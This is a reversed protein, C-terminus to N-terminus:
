EVQLIEILLLFHNKLAGNHSFIRIHPGGGPGAGTIIEKIGDGDVDGIAVEVGGRFGEGYAM